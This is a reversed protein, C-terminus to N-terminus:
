LAREVARKAKLPLVPSTTCSVYGVYQGHAILTAMAVQGRERFSGPVADVANGYVAFVDYGSSRNLPRFANFEYVRSPKGEREDLLRVVVLSMQEVDVYRFLGM